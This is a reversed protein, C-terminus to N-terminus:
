LIWRVIKGVLSSRAGRTSVSHCLSSPGGGRADIAACHCGSSCRSHRAPGPLPALFPASFLAKWGSGGREGGGGGGGREGERQLSNRGMVVGASQFTQLFDQQEASGLSVSAQNCRAHIGSIVPALSPARHSPFFFISFAQNRNHIDGFCGRFSYRVSAVATHQLTADSGSLLSIKM